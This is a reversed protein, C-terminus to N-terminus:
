AEAAELRQQESIRRALVVRALLMSIEYLVILAVFLSGMTIPSWDPTVVAAVVMMVVYAVRWNARLTKYPVINFILLYFVVVPLQFGIGFAILLLTVAAFYRGADALPAVSVGSIQGIMWEFARPEVVIYCFVVGGAFLAFMTLFTPVVYKREKPKLAPLFFAMAQWIIIPAAIVLSAYLGIRFRLTFGEFPGLIVLDTVGREELVPMVPKLVFDFIDWAWTYLIMSLTLVTAFVIVLRRRLEALHEFFPMRKPAIPM